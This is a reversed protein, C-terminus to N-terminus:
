GKPKKLEIFPPYDELSEFDMNWYLISYDQGQSLADRILELAQEKEGLVAAIRARRYTHIGFLYPGDLNKLKESIRDAEARDGLRAAICGLYGLYAVSGPREEHLERSIKLAEVWDELHYLIGAMRNRFSRTTKEEAPRKNYWDRARSFYGFAAERFGYARLYQGASQMLSGPTTSQPPYAYSEEIARDIEDTNGLATYARVENWLTRMREPFLERSRRAERLEQEHQGLLHYALTLHSWYGLWDTVFMDEPDLAKLMVIAEQPRNLKNANLAITYNYMRTGHLDYARKAARYQGELDGRLWSGTYDFVYAETLPDLEDRIEEAQSILEEAKKYNNSNMYYGAIPILAYHFEPDLTMSRTLHTISRSQEGRMFTDWGVKYETYAEYTPPKVGVQLPAEMDQDNLCALTGMVKEKLLNLAPEPSGAMQYVPDLAFLVNSAIADLVHAQFHIVDHQLYYTGAVITGAGTKKTLIQLPDGKDADKLITAVTSAPVVDYLGTEEIGQTLRDCAMRGIYVLEPNGTQNEFVAVALRGPDLNPGRGLVFYLILVAAALVALAPLVIKRANFTVTIERSTRAKRRPPVGEVSPIGEEIRTLAEWVEQTSQPRNEVKKELCQLILLSLEAPVQPNIEGPDGPMEGKHKMGISFATEGEFPLRGTVMEYLIIGLSYIDSRQDLDGADVQEPSMYEPTGIMVGSGTIGKSKISRAIGFDMIKARGTDDIMINGPKLDRHIIGLNHAEALGECIQKAISIATGTDLRRTKRILSKLDGGDVFEMTIYYKGQDRNLDHMRCVNKHAIQRATTLENRFREIIKEDSAIGPKIIKLAIKENIETDLAKYVRGMGGQGLEEIIQYRGAFTSGTTMDERPTELTKTFVPQAEQSATLPAACNSCFRATDTNESHCKPCRM